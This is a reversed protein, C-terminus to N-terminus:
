KEKEELEFELYRQAKKLDQVENGKMKARLIYKLVNGINFGLGYARIIDIVEIGGQKYHDPSIPDNEAEPLYPLQNVPVNEYQCSQFCLPSCAMIGAIGNDSRTGCGFNVMGTMDTGCGECLTKPTARDSRHWWEKKCPESHFYATGGDVQCNM